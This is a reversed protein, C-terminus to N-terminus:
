GYKVSICHQKVACIITCNVKSESCWSIVESSNNGADRVHLREHSILAEALAAMHKSKVTSVLKLFKEFSAFHFVDEKLSRLVHM